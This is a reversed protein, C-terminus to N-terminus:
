YLRCACAMGSVAMCDIVNVIVLSCSSWVVISFSMNVIDEVSVLETNFRVAVDILLWSVISTM